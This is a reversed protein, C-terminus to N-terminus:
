DGSPRTVMDTLQKAILLALLANIVTRTRM